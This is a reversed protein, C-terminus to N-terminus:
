LCGGAEGELGCTLSRTNAISAYYESVNIQSGLSHQRNLETQDYNGKRRSEVVQVALRALVFFTEVTAQPSYYAAVLNLSTRWLCEDRINM